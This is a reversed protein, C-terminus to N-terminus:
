VVQEIVYLALMVLDFIYKSGAHASNLAVPM